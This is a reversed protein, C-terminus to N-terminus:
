LAVSDNVGCVGFGQAFHVDLLSVKNTHVENSWQSGTLNRNIIFSAFMARVKIISLFIGKRGGKCVTYM